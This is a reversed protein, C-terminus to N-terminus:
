IKRWRIDKKMVEQMPGSIEYIVVKDFTIGNGILNFYFDYWWIIVKKDFKKAMFLIKWRGGTLNEVLIGYKEVIDVDKIL